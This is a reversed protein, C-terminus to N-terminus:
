AGFTNVNQPSSIVDPKNSAVAKGFRITAVNPKISMPNPTDDM